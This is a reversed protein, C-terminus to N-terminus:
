ANRGSSFAQVRQDWTHPSFGLKRTAERQLPSLNIFATAMTMPWKAAPTEKTDWAQQNWGLNKLLAQEAKNLEKWSSAFLGSFDRVTSPDKVLMKGTYPQAAVQELTPQAEGPGEEKPKVAVRQAGGLDREFSRPIGWGDVKGQQGKPAQPPPQPAAAENMVPIQGAGLLASAVQQAVQPTVGLSALATAVQATVQAQQGGTARANQQGRMPTQPLPQRAGDTGTAQGFARTATANPNFYKPQRGVARREAQMARRKAPPMRKTRLERAKQKMLKQVNDFQRKASESREALFAQEEPSLSSTDIPSPQRLNQLANVDELYKASGLKKEAQEYHRTLKTYYQIINARNQSRARVLTEPDMDGSTPVLRLEPLPSSKASKVAAGVDINKAGGASVQASMKGLFKQVQGSRKPFDSSQLAKLQADSIARFESPKGSGITSFFRGKNQATQARFKPDEALKTFGEKVEGNGNAKALLETAKTRAFTPMKGVAPQQVFADVNGQAKTDSPNREVMNMAARQAPRGIGKDVLVGLMDGAKKAAELNGKGAQRLGFDMFRSKTQADSRNSQVFKSQLLEAAPKELKPNETLAKQLTGAQQSNKVAQEFGPTKSLNDMARATEAGKQPNRAVAERFLEKQADTLKKQLDGNQQWRGLGDAVEPGAAGGLLQNMRDNNARQREFTEKKVGSEKLEEKKIAIKKEAAKRAADSEDEKNIAQQTQLNAGSILGQVNADIRDVPM